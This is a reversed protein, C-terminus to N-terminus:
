QICIHSSSNTNKASFSERHYKEVEHCWNTPSQDSFWAAQVEAVSLNNELDQSVM